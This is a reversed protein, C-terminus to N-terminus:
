PASVQFLKTQNIFLSYTATTKRHLSLFKCLIPYFCSRTHHGGGCGLARRNMSTKGEVVRGEGEGGRSCVGLESMPNKDVLLAACGGGFLKPDQLFVNGLLLIIITTVSSSLTVKLTWPNGLFSQSSNNCCHHPM